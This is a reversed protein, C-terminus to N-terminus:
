YLVYAVNIARRSVLNRCHTAFMARLSDSISTSFSVFQQTAGPEDAM